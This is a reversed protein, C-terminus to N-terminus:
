VWHLTAAAMVCLVRMFTFRGSWPALVPMVQLMLVPLVGSACLVIDGGSVTVWCDAALDEAIQGAVHTGYGTAARSGTVLVSRHLCSQLDATGRAWLAYPRAQGLDDLGAPWHPDGPCIVRL